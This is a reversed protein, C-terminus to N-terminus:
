AGRAWLFSAHVVAQVVAYALVGLRASSWRLREDLLTFGLLGFGLLAPLVLRATWYGHYYAFQVYPMFLAINLFFAVSFALVILIPLRRDLPGERLGRLYSRARFLYVAPAAIMLLALPLAWNVAFTMLGQHLADRPGFYADTPDYQFINLPDTFISLHLLAPYSHRNSVLLNYSETGLLTIRDIYLPARLVDIDHARLML